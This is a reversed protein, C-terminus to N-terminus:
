ASVTRRTARRGLVAGGIAVLLALISLFLALGAPSDSAAAHTHDDRTPAAATPAAAAEAVLSLGPAPREPEQERRGEARDLRVRQRRQLEAGDPVVARGRPLARRVPRVGPVGGPRYRRRDRPVGGGLRLLQNAQGERKVPKALDGRRRTATWGPVPQTRLPAMAAQSPIQIRLGVTSAADSENPVRFTMKGYGGPRCGALVGHRPRGGRPSTSRPRWRPLGWSSSLAPRASSRALARPLSM